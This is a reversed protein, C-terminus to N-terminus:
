QVLPTEAQDLTVGQLRAEGALVQLYRRLATAFAQQRLSQAV